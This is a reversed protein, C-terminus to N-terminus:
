WPPPAIAKAELISPVRTANCTPEIHHIPLRISGRRAAATDGSPEGGQLRPLNVCDVWRERSRTGIGRDRMGARSLNPAGRIEAGGAVEWVSTPRAGLTPGRSPLM